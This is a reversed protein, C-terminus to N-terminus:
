KEYREKYSQLENKYHQILATTKPPIAEASEAEKDAKAYWAKMFAIEEKKVHMFCGTKMLFLNNENRIETPETIELLRVAEEIRTRSWICNKNECQASILLDNLVPKEDYILCFDTKDGHCMGAYEIWENWFADTLPVAKRGSIKMINLGDAEYLVSAVTNQKIWFLCHFISM